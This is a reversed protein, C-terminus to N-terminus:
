RRSVTVRAAERDWTTSTKGERRLQEKLVRGTPGRPLTERFEIYLPVAFYPLEEITWRCLAEETIAKPEVLEATVKVDEDGEPTKVAHVAVERIAPHKAIIREVEASSINEGRRRIYDKKRDVFYFWGSEDIRGLDGTHFWLNRWAEVTANQRNWYGCFLINPKLPRCVIEGVTNPPVLNDDDDVIRVEFDGGGHGSSGPPGAEEGPDLSCITAAETLGYGAAGKAIVGFRERWISADEASLPAAILRRIQGRCRTAADDAAARAILNPMSALLNVTTAGSREIESWFNSVSFRKAISVRCQALLAIMVSSMPNVHFLPMCNWLIDDERYGILEIGRRGVNCLQNHPLMCGKSPGTTGSTYVLAAVTDPKAEDPIPVVKGSDLESFPAFPVQGVTRREDLGVLFVRQLSPVELAVDLVRQLYEADSILLRPETDNLQSLLYAGKFAPNVPAHIAGIKNTAFWVVLTELCNELMSSVPEGKVVGAARLGHAYRTTLADFEGFTLQQGLIDLFVRDPARAVARALAATITDQDQSMIEGDSM